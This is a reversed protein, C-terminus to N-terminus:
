SVQKDGVCVKGGWGNWHLTGGDGCSQRPSVPVLVPNVNGSLPKRFDVEIPRKSVRPPIGTFDSSYFNPKEKTKVGTANSSCGGCGSFSETEVGASEAAKALEADALAKAKAAQKTEYIEKGMWILGGLFFIGSGIAIYNWMKSGEIKDIVNEM